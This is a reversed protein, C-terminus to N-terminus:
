GARPSATLAFIQHPSPVNCPNRACTAKVTEGPHRWGAARWRIAQDLAAGADATLFVQRRRVAAALERRAASNASGPRASGGNSRFKAWSFRCPPQKLLPHGRPPQCTSRRRGSPARRARLLSSSVRAWKRAAEEVAALGAASLPSFRDAAPTWWPVWPRRGTARPSAFDRAAPVLLSCSGLCDHHRRM